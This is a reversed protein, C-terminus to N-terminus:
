RSRRAKKKPSLGEFFHRISRRLFLGLIALAAVILLIYLAVPGLWTKLIGWKEGFLYGALGYLSAYAASGALNYFLFPRLPTRGMGAILGTIPHILAVFRALFVGKAGYKEFFAEMKQVRKPTIQLWRIKRLLRHGFRRGIWYSLDGGLFCAVTGITIVCGLSLTGKQALFGGGLLMTDGPVPIGLNNLFVVLFVVWYGHDALLAQFWEFM